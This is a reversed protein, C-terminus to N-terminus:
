SKDEEDRKRKGSATSPPLGPVTGGSGTVGVVLGMLWGNERRLQECERELEAVRGELDKSRQELAVEREKKKARFRASAATNRRRKDEAMSMPMPSGPPLSSSDTPSAVPSLLSAKRGRGRRTPGLSGSDLEDSQEQPTAQAASSRSLHQGYANQSQHQQQSFPYSSLLQALSASHPQPPAAVPPVLFPDIGFGALVSGVDFNAGRDQLQQMHQGAQSVAIANVVNAHSEPNAPGEPDQEDDKDDDITPSETSSSSAGVGRGGGNEKAPGEDSQFTLNTWVDLERVYEEPASLLDHQRPHYSDDHHVLNLGHLPSQAMQRSPPHYNRALIDDYTTTPTSSSSLTPRRHRPPPHLRRPHSPVAALSDANYVNVEGKKLRRIRFVASAIHAGEEAPGARERGKGHLGCLFVSHKYASFRECFFELKRTVNRYQNPCSVRFVPLTQRRRLLERVDEEQRMWRCRCRESPRRISLGSDRYDIMALVTM